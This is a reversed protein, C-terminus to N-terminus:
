VKAGCEAGRANEEAAGASDTHACQFFDLQIRWKKKKKVTNCNFRKIFHLGLEL